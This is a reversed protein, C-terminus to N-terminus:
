AVTGSLAGVRGSAPGAGAVMGAVLRVMGSGAVGVWGGPGAAEDNVVAMLLSAAPQLSSTVFNEWVTRANVRRSHASSPIPANSINSTCPRHLRHRQSKM